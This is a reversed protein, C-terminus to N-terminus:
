GNQNVDDYSIQKVIDVFMGVERSKNMVAHKFIVVTGTIM